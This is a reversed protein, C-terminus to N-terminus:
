SPIFIKHRIAYLVLGIRNKIGLKEYISDRYGEITKPSLFMQKAIEKYTMESCALQMFELERESLSNMSSVPNEIKNMLLKATTNNHFYGYKIVQIMAEYLTESKVDKLLYGRAGARLMELIIKEDEEISLALVKIEPHEKRLYATTEIGNMIPMNVDMLVIDPNISGSEVRDIFDSGNNCIYITKFLDFGNIMGGLAQSLLTHDDVVVVKYKKDDTVAM